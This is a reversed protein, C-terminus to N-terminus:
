TSTRWEISSRRLLPDEQISDENIYEYQAFVLLTSLKAIGKMQINMWTSPIIHSVKLRQIATTEVFINRSMYNIARRVRKRLPVKYVVICSKLWVPVSSLTERM